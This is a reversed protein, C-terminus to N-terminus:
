NLNWKYKKTWRRMLDKLKLADRWLEDKANVGKRTKGVLVKDDAFLM